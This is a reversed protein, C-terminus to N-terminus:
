IYKKLVPIQELLFVIGACVVFVALEVVFIGLVCNLDILRQMIGIQVIRWNIFMHLLYIGFTTKSIACIVRKGKIEREELLYRAIYTISCAMLVSPFSNYGDLNYSVNGTELYPIYCSLFMGAYATLFILLSIVFYRKDLKIKSIYSGAVVLGLLQPFFSYFFFSSFAFGYYIKVVNLFSPIILFVTIFVKYDIDKFNKVMKQMFPLVLYFGLLMYIYWFPYIYPETLFQKVFSILNFGKIGTEKITFLFVLTVVPVLIKVVMSFVKKYNYEKDIMLISSIIIFIAVAMKCLAFGLCYFFTAHVYGSDWIRGHTHNVIVLFCALIRLIHIYMIEKKRDISKELSM